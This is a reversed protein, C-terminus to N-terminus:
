LREEEGPRASFLPLLFNQEGTKVSKEDELFSLFVGVWFVWKSLQGTAEWTNSFHLLRAEEPLRPRCCLPWGPRERGETKVSLYLPLSCLFLPCFLAPLGFSFFFFLFSSSPSHDSSRFFFFFLFVSSFLSFCLSPFFVSRRRSGGGGSAM